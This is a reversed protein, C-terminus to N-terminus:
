KASVGFRKRMADFEADTFHAEPYDIGAGEDVNMIGAPDDTSHGLGACHGIEHAATLAMSGAYGNILSRITESRLDRARDTGFRYSGDLLDLDAASLPPQLAHPQFITRRIFTSFIECWDGHAMGGAADHDGAVYAEWPKKKARAPLRTAFSIKLSRGPIAHGNPERLFKTNTVAIVRAMLEDKVLHDVLACAGSTSLGLQALDADITSRQEDGWSFRVWQTGDEFAFGDCRWRGFPDGLTPDPAKAKSTGQDRWADPLASPLYPDLKGRELRWTQLPARVFGTKADTTVEGRPGHHRLDAFWQPSPTARALASLAIQGADFGEASGYRVAGHAKECADVFPGTPTTVLPSRPLVIALPRTRRKTDDGYSRPTLVCAIGPAHAEIADLAADVAPGAAVDIVVVLPATKAFKAAFQAVVENATLELTIAASEALAGELAKHLERSATTGDGVFAIRPARWHTVVLDVLALAVDDAAAQFALVPLRSRAAASAAPAALSQELPGIIAIVGREALRAVAQEVGGVSGDCSEVIWRVRDGGDALELALAAGQAFAHGDSDTADARTAVVGLHPPDDAQLPSLAALAAVLWSWM